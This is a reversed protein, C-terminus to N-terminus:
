RRNWPMVGNHTERTFGAAWYQKWAAIENAEYRWLRGLDFVSVEKPNVDDYRPWWGCNNASLRPWEAAFKPGNRDVIYPSELAMLALNSASVGALMPALPRSGLTSLVAHWVVFLWTTPKDLGLGGVPWDDPSAVMEQLLSRVKRPHDYGVWADLLSMLLGCRPTAGLAELLPKHAASERVAFECRPCAPRGSAAAEATTKALPTVVECGCASQRPANPSAIHSLGKELCNDCTVSSPATTLRGREKPGFYLGCQSRLVQSGNAHTEIGGDLHTRKDMSRYM